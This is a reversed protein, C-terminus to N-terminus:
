ICMSFSVFVRQDLSLDSLALHVGVHDGLPDLFKMVCCLDECRLAGGVRQARFNFHDVTVKFFDSNIKYIPM